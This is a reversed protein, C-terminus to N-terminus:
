KPTANSEKVNKKNSGKAKRYKKPLLSVKVGDCTIMKTSGKEVHAGQTRRALGCLDFMTLDMSHVVENIDTDEQSGEQIQM